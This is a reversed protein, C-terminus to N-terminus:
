ERREWSMNWFGVELATAQRFVECLERLREPLTDLLGSGFAALSVGPLLIPFLQDVADRAEQAVSQYEEGGYTEIWKAYPNVKGKGKESAIRTEQLLFTGIVAYGLVCPLLATRLDLLDGSIGKECVYRTYAVNATAERTSELEARTVRWEECFQIHLKQEAAMAQAMMSAKEISEASREKFAVLSWCRAYHTLFLYDQQIFFRFKEPDLTGDGIGRVFPHTLTFLEWVDPCTSILFDSFRMPTTERPPLPPPVRPCLVATPPTTPRSPLPPGVLASSVPHFHCLSPIGKGVPIAQEIAAHLYNRASAVASPISADKALSATIAASLTCGTGHFNQGHLYPKVFLYVDGGRSGNSQPIGGSVKLTPPLYLVDVALHQQNGILHRSISSDMRLWGGSFHKWEDEPSEGQVTESGLVEFLEAASCARHGGKVLVAPGLQSLVRASDIMDSLSTISTPTTASQATTGTEVATVASKVEPAVKKKIWRLMVEAEPINPTVVTARPVLENVMLQVADEALLVHGSTSVMVPDLVYNPPRGDPYRHEFFSTISNIIPASSLMGTKIAGWLMVDRSGESEGERSGLVSRLQEEVFSSPVEHVGQVGLTNQATVATIVSGGYVGLATFTKLDAQIGAGGGSDSGAITLATHPTSSATPFTM